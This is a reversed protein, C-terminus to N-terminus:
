KLGGIFESAEGLKAFPVEEKAKLAQAVAVKSVIQELDRPKLFKDPIDGNYNNDIIVPVASAKQIKLRYFKTKVERNDTTKMASLLYESMKDAAKELRQAQKSLAAAEKRLFTASAILGRIVWVWSNVKNLFADNGELEADAIRKLEKEMEIPDDLELAADIDRQITEKLEQNASIMQPLTQM